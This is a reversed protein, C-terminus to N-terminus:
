FMELEGAPELEVTRADVSFDVVSKRGACVCYSVRFRCGSGALVELSGTHCPKLLALHQHCRGELFVPTSMGLNPMATTLAAKATGTAMNIFEACADIPFAADGAAGALGFKKRLFNATPVDVDFEYFVVIRFGYAAISCTALRRQKDSAVADPAGDYPMLICRDEADIRCNERLAQEFSRDIGACASPSITV